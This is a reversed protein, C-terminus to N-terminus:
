EYHAGFLESMPLRATTYYAELKELAAQFHDVMDNGKAVQELETYMTDVDKLLKRSMKGLYNDSFSTAYISFARRAKVAFVKDNILSSATNVDGNAVAVGIKRITDIAELIRPHYRDYARRAGVVTRDAQAVDPLTFLAAPVLLLLSRRSLSTPRPPRAPEPISAMIPMLSVHRQPCPSNTVHRTQKSYSGGSRLRYANVVQVGNVFAM